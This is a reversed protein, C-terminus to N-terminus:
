NSRVRDNRDDRKRGLLGALGILGLLGWPFDDDDEQIPQVAALNPDTGVTTAQAAALAPLSGLALAAISIGLKRMTTVGQQPPRQVARDVYLESYTEDLCKNLL